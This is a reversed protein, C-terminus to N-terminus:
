SCLGKDKCTGSVTWSLRGDTAAPTLIYTANALGKATGATATITGADGVSVSKVVADDAGTLAAPVGQAGATCQTLDATAAFCNEVGLKYPVSALTVETFAGKQLYSQYSPLAVAALAGIIAIIVMLEMLTFGHQSRRM